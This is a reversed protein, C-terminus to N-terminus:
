LINSLILYFNIFNALPEQIVQFLSYSEWKVVFEESFVCGHPTTVNDLISKVEYKDNENSDLYFFFSKLEDFVVGSM